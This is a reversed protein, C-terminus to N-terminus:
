SSVGTRSGNFDHKVFMPFSTDPTIEQKYITALIISKNEKIESAM